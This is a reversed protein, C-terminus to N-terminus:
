GEDRFRPHDPINECVEAIREFRWRHRGSTAWRGSPGLEHLDMVIAFRNLSPYVLQGHDINVAESRYRGCAASAGPVASQSM